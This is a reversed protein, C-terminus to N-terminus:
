PATAIANRGSAKARYMAQDARNVVQDVTEGPRLVAVGISVGGKVVGGAADLPEALARRLRDAIARADELDRVQPLVVLIEDGGFRAILADGSLQEAVRNAAATIVADGVAHGLTDNITKLDDLDCFLVTVGPSAAANDTVLDALRDLICSRNLLGTLSDTTAMRQLEAEAQVAAQADRTVAYIETVNGEADYNFSNTTETWVWHGDAHRVRTRRPATVVGRAMGTRIGAALAQALDDPHIIAQAYTGVLEEPTYGLLKTVSPSVWRHIGNLDIVRVVDGISEALLRFDQESAALAEAMRHRDTVDRWTLSIGDGVKVAHLDFRRQEVAAGTGDGAVFDELVLPEGSNVVRSFRAIAKRRREGVVIDDMRAGMLQERSRALYSCAAANAEQVVFDVVEGADDRIAELHMHPEMTSQLLATLREHETRLAEEAAVETSIDRVIGARTSPTPSDGDIPRLVLAAWRYTGDSRLWRVRREPVQEAARLSRIVPEVDDPHVLDTIHRGALQGPAWGVSQAAADSVWQLVGDHTITLLAGSSAESMLAFRQETEALREELAVQRTVDHLLLIVSTSMDSADTMHGVTVDMWRTAGGAYVQVRDIRTDAGGEAADACARRVATRDDPHVLGLPDVLARDPRIGLAESVSPSVWRGTIDPNLIM